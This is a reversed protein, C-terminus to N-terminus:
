GTYRLVLSGADLVPKCPLSQASGTDRLITIPCSESHKDVSVKGSVKFPSFVDQSSSRIDVCTVSKDSKTTASSDSQSLKYAASSKCNPHTCDKITHGTKRCYSCFPDKFVYTSNNDVSKNGIGSDLQSGSSPKVSKSNGRHTKIILNYSDALQAAKKLDMERKEEIHVSINFPLRRKFEELAVLNVLDPFSTVKLSDLWKKLSRLKDNAFDLFTQEDSKLTNRFQRRYFEPTIEYADLVAKKVLEYNSIDDMNNVVTAAKGELKPHILWTWENRPWQLHEATKEFTQFYREPDSEIFKPVLSISKALNFSKTKKELDLKEQDLKM